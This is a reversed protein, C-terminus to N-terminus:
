GAPPRTLKVLTAVIKDLRDVVGADTKAYGWQVAVDLAALCERAERLAVGYARRRNGDFSAMGEALNLAVSQAARRLQRALDPDHRGIAVCMRRADAQMLRVDGYMRLM